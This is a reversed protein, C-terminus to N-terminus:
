LSQRTRKAEEVISKTSIGLLKLAPAFQRTAFVIDEITFHNVWDGSTGKRLHEMQIGEHYAYNEPDAKIKKRITDISNDSAIQDYDTPYPNELQDGIRKLVTPTDSLLGEYTTFATYQKQDHWAKIYENYSFFLMTDNIMFWLADKITDLKWYKQVSVAVDFPHREILAIKQRKPFAPFLHHGPMLHEQIVIYDTSKPFERAAVARRTKYGKIPCRFMDAVCRSLWTTGSKPYGAVYITEM